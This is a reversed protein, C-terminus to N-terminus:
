FDGSIAAPKEAKILNEIRDFRDLVLKAALVETSTAKGILGRELTELAKSVLNPLHFTLKDLSEYYATSLIDQGTAGYLLRYCKGRSMGLNKSVKLISDGVLVGEVVKRALPSEHNITQIQEM